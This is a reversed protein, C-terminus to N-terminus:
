TRQQETGAPSAALRGSCSTRRHSFIISKPMVRVSPTTARPPPTTPTLGAAMMKEWLIVLQEACKASEGAPVAHCVVQYSMRKLSDSLRSLYLPLVNSDTVVFLRKAQPCVRQIAAGARDLLSPAILIDYSRGPLTVTLTKM